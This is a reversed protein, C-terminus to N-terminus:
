RHKRHTDPRAQSRLAPRNLCLYSLPVTRKDKKMDRLNSQTTRIQSDVGKLADQLKTTDGGIEVTLGKIRNAM